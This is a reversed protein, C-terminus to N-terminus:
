GERSVQPAACPKHAEVFALWNRYFRVASGRWSSTLREAVESFPFDALLEPHREAAAAERFAVLLAVAEQTVYGYPMDPYFPQQGSLYRGVDRRYERLLTQEDYEPHGQVLVFLSRGQRVFANVGAERSWNVIVYGAAVLKDRPLDNWRSHPIRIPSEIGAMLPHNTRAFHDFVGCCKHPLRQRQIGDLHLVAAHAALCSWLTSVTNDEAWELLEVLRQWYPEDRLSPSRPETGTVILADLPVKLLDSIHWYTSAVHQSAAPGRSIEPLSSLRLVVPRSGAAAELLTRFQTEVSELAADPMNNVLGVVIPDAAAGLSAGRMSSSSSAKATPVALHRTSFQGLM